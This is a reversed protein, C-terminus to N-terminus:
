NLLLYIVVRYVCLFFVFIFTTLHMDKDASFDSTLDKLIETSGLSLSVM